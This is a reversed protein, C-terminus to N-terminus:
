PNPGEIIGRELNRQPVGDETNGYRIRLGSALEFGWAELLALPDILNARGGGVRKSVRGSVEVGVVVGARIDIHGLYMVSRCADAFGFRRNCRSLAPNTLILDRSANRRAAPLCHLSGDSLIACNNAWKQGSSGRALLDPHRVEDYHSLVNGTGGTRTEYRAQDFEFCDAPTNCHEATETGVIANYTVTTDAIDAALAAPTVETYDFAMNGVPPSTAPYPTWRGEGDNRRDRVDFTVAGSLKATAVLDRVAKPVESGGFSGLAPDGLHALEADMLNALYALEHARDFAAQEVAFATSVIADRIVGAEGRSLNNGAADFLEDVDVDSLNGDATVRALAARVADTDAKGGAEGGSDDNPDFDASCALGLTLAAFLLPLKRM